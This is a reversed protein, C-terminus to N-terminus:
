SLEKIAETPCGEVGEKACGEFESPVTEVKSMAKGEDDWAFVDPCAGICFSCSICLDQDVAVKM